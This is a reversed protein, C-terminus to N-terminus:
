PALDFLDKFGTPEHPGLILQELIGIGRRSGCTAECVAQIHLHMPASPDSESLKWSEGAVQNDGVYMGHGWQPHGYGIGIMYFNYLPKLAIQLPEGSKPRLTIEARRAHRTGAQMELRYDVSAMTQVAGAQSGSLPIAMGVAHWRTGDAEETVDFHTCLDEFHLPAWLWFFQLPFDPVGGADREGVPRIGWSRDRSGWFDRESIDIRRGDVDLQGSWVGHQTLRTYDMFVRAGTRRFFHPEEFAPARQTFVLDGCIGFSNPEIKVRLRRLPELVEISIPGVAMEMREADLRRSARVVHQRGDAVVSVAADMVSRNPYVGLAAAFYISGDRSYGNFFYRDYFNRDSSATYAMPFSTQHIPYDDAKTLM